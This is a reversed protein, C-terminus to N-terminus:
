LEEYSKVAKKDHLFTGTSLLGVLDVGVEAGLLYCWKEARRIWNL